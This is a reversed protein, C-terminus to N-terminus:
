ISLEAGNPARLIWEYCINTGLQLSRRMSPEAHDMYETVYEVTLSKLSTITCTSQKGLIVKHLFMISITKYLAFPMFDVLLM